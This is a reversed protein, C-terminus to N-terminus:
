QTCGSYPPTPLPTALHTILATTSPQSHILPTFVNRESRCYTMPITLRTKIQRLLLSQRRYNMIDRLDRGISTRNNVSIRKTLKEIPAKPGFMKLSKNFTDVGQPAGRLVVCRWPKEKQKCECGWYSWQHSMFRMLIANHKRWGLWVIRRQGREDVCCSSSQPQKPNRHVMRADIDMCYDFCWIFSCIVVSNKSHFHNTCECYLIVYLFSKLKMESLHGWRLYVDSKSAKKLCM